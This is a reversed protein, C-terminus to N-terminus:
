LSRCAVPLWGRQDIRQHSLIGLRPVNAPVADAVSFDIAVDAVPWREHDAANERRVVGAVEFGYEAALSEVLRGMRGYGVLLVTRSPSENPTM